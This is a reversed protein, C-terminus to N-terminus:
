LQLADAAIARGGCWAQRRRRLFTGATDRAADLPLLAPLRKGDVVVWFRDTM